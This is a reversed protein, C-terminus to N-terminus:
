NGGRPKRTLAAPHLGLAKLDKYITVKCVQYEQAYVVAPKVRGNDFDDQIRKRREHMSENRNKEAPYVFDGTIRQIRKPPEPVFGRGTQYATYPIGSARVIQLVTTSQMQLARGVERTSHREDCCMAIIWSNREQTCHWAHRCTTFGPKRVRKRDAPLWPYNEMEDRWIPSHMRWYDITAPSRKVAAAIDKRFAGAAYLRAALRITTEPTRTSM